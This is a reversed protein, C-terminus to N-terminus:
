SDSARGRCAPSECRPLRTRHCQPRPTGDAAVAVGPGVPHRSLARQGPPGDHGLYGGRGQVDDDLWTQLRPWARTLAEHSLELAEDDSTVLRADVLLGILREHDASAAVMRLPVRSRVPEGEPTPTVLRLLLDRLMARQEPAVQEYVKEASQAVASRIGGTERYGNVTLTRGERRAWTQSLAHSLLPLAGPEGEAERILLDVLGPELLLGHQRAPGEIAGRLDQEGLPRLLYLSREVLQAFEPYESLAGLHDARLAVIVLARSAHSAVAAFFRVREDDSECMTIAEECQDVVLVPAVGNTSLSTLADM